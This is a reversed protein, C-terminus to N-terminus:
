SKPKRRWDGILKAIQLVLLILGFIPIWQAAFGSAQDVTPLWAGSTIAAFAVGLNIKTITM